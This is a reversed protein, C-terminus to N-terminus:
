LRDMPSRVRAKRPCTRLWARAEEISGFLRVVVGRPSCVRSFPECEGDSITPGGVVVLAEHSRRDFGLQDLVAGLQYVDSVGTSVLLARCDGLLRLAGTQAAMTLNDGMAEICDELSVPPVYETFLIDDEELYSLKYAM